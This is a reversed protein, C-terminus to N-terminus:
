SQAPAKGSRRVWTGNKKELWVWESQSCLNGCWDLIYVLAATQTSNFYAESFYTIGIYNAWKSQSSSSASLSTRSAKFQSTDSPSLLVYPRPLDLHRKLVLRDKRRQNYDNVAEHFARVNDTPAQLTAEPALKPNIDDENVTTDSIAWPQGSDMDTFVQGPMLVSYILYTDPMRDPVIAAPGAATPVAQGRPAQVPAAQSLAVAATTVAALALLIWRTVAATSM